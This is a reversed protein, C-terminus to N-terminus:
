LGGFRRWGRSDTVPATAPASAASNVRSATPTGRVPLGQAWRTLRKQAADVTEALSRSASGTMALLKGAALEASTMRVISPVGEPYLAANDFPTAQGPVMDDIVQDAWEIAADRNLPAIVMIPDEADDFTLAPGSPTARVAFTHETEAQAYYTVGESLQPPLAGDGAPRFLIADGTEFGHVDLVCVSSEAVALVRGPNPTAGRPVGFAYLDSPSCYPM